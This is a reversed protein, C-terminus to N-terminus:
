CLGNHYVQCSLGLWLVGHKPGYESKKREGLWTGIWTPVRAKQARLQAMLRMHPEKDFAKTFDLFVVDIVENRDVARTLRELFELLIRQTRNEQWSDM